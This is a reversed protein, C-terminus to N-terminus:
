NKPTYIECKIAKIWDILTNYFRDLWKNDVCYILDITKPYHNLQNSFLYLYQKLCRHILTSYIKFNYMKCGLRFEM